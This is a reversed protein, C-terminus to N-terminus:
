CRGVYVKAGVEVENYRKMANKMDVAVFINLKKEDGHRTVSHHCVKGGLKM